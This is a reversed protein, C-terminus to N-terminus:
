LKYSNSHFDFIPFINMCKGNIQDGIIRDKYRGEAMDSAPIEYMRQLRRLTRCMLKLDLESVIKEEGINKFVTM